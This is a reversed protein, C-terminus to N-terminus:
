IAALAQEEGMIVGFRHFPEQGNQLFAKHFYSDGSVKRQVYAAIKTAKEGETTAGKASCWPM